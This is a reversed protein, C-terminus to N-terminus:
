NSACSDSLSSGRSFWTHAISSLGQFEKFWGLVITNLPKLPGKIRGGNHRSACQCHINNKRNSNNSSLLTFIALFGPFICFSFRTPHVPSPLFHFPFLLLTWLLYSPFRRYKLKSTLHRGTLTSGFVVAIRRVATRSVLTERCWPPGILPGGSVGTCWQVIMNLPNIIHFSISYSNEWHEMREVNRGSNTWPFEGATWNRKLQLAQLQSLNRRHM